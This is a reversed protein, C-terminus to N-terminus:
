IFSKAFGFIIPLKTRLFTMFFHRNIKEEYKELFKHKKSKVNGLARKLSSIKPFNSNLKNVVLEELEKALKTLSGVDM